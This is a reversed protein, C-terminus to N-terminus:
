KKLEKIVDVLTVIRESVIALNVNLENVQSRLTDLIENKQSLEEKLHKIELANEKCLDRLDQSEKDINKQTEEKDKNMQVSNQKCCFWLYIYFCGIVIVAIGIIFLVFPIFSEPVSKIITSIMTEM